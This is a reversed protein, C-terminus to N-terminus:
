GWCKERYCCDVCRRSYVTAEPFNETRIINRIENLSKWLDTRDSTDIRIVDGSKLFKIFGFPSKLKMQNEILVAEFILQLRQSKFIRRPKNSNKLQLPYAEGEDKNLVICDVRTSIGLKESELYVDFIKPLNPFRESSKIGEQNRKSYKMSREVKM